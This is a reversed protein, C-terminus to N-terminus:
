QGQEDAGPVAPVEGAAPVAADQEASQQVAGPGTLEDLAQDDEGGQGVISLALASTFFVMALVSTSKSLFNSTGTIGVLSGQSGRGFSAGMDAGRGHQLLITVVMVVAAVVNLALLFTYM